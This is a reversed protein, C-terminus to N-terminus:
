VGNGEIKEILTGIEEVGKQLQLFEWKLLDVNKEDYMMNDVIDEMGQVRKIHIGVTLLLEYWKKGSECPIWDGMEQTM